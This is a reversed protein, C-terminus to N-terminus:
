DGSVLRGEDTEVFDVDRLPNDTTPKLVLPAASMATQANRRYVGFLEGDPNRLLFRPGYKGSDLRLVRYRIGNVVITPLAKAM